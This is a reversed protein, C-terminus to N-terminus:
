TMGKLGEEKVVSKWVLSKVAPIEEWRDQEPTTKLRLGAETENLTTRRVVVGDPKLGLGSEQKIVLLLHLSGKVLRLLERTRFADRQGRIVEAARRLGSWLGASIKDRSKLLGPM